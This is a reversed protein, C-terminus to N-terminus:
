RASSALAPGRAALDTLHRTAAPWVQGLRLAARALVAHPAVLRLGRALARRARTESRYCATYVRSVDRPDAGAVIEAAGAGAAIGSRLGVTLGCGLIPDVGGGADGVLFAGDAAVRKPRSRGLPRSEPKGVVEDLTRRAAPHADLAREVWARAGRPGPPPSTFLVAVNVCDDALPTLYIEAEGGMHIEVRDLPERASFYARVGLRTSATRQRGRLWGACRGPLGDAAVLATARWVGSVAEIQFGRGVREATCRSAVREIAPEQNVAEDLCSQLTARPLAIGPRELDLSLPRVGPAYYRLGPFPRGAALARELGLHELAERGAPMLGEGCPKPRTMSQPEFLMVRLGRRAAELATSCGAPGGGVVALDCHTMM